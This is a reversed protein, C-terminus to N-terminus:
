DGRTREGAHIVWADAQRVLGVKVPAKGGAAWSLALVNRWTQAKRTLALLPFPTDPIDHFGPLAGVSPTATVGDPTLLELRLHAQDGAAFAGDPLPAAPHEPHFSLTLQRPADTEIDDAVVLVDPKLFLLHRVFKKLGLTPPYANAAEGVM